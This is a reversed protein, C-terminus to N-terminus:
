VRCVQLQVFALDTCRRLVNACGVFLVNHESYTCMHTTIYSQCGLQLQVFVLDICCWLVNACGVCLSMINVCTVKVTVLSM